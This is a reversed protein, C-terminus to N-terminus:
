NRKEQIHTDEIEKDIKRKWEDHDLTFKVDIPRLDQYLTQYKQYLELKSPPAAEDKEKKDKPPQYAKKSERLPDVVTQRKM